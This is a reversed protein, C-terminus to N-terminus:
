KASTSKTKPSFRIKGAEIGELLYEATTMVKLKGEFPVRQKLNHKDIKPNKYESEIVFLYM